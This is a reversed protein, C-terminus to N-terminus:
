NFLYNVGARIINEEFRSSATFVIPTTTTVNVSQRGLDVFLYEAKFTWHQSLKTEVGGGATWGAHIGSATGSGCITANVICGSTLDATSLSTATKGYAVGGTAYLLWSPAILYGARLRATGFWYVRKSAAWTAADFLPPAILQNDSGKIGSGQLDTEFGLVWNQSTQWNYGVQGGGIVGSAKPSLMSPAVGNAFIFAVFGALAPDTSYGSINASQSDFGGGLNGGAYFGTWTSAPPSPAPPSIPHRPKALAQATTFLAFLAIVGIKLRTPRGLAQPM